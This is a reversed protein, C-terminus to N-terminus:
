EMRGRPTLSATAKLRARSVCGGAEVVLYLTPQFEGLCYRLKDRMFCVALSHPHVTRCKRNPQIEIDGVFPLLNEEGLTKSGARVVLRMDDVHRVENESNELVFASQVFGTVLQRGAGVDSLEFACELEGPLFLGDKDCKRIRLPRLRHTKVGKVFCVGAAVFVILALPWNGEM